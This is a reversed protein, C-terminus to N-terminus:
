AKNSSVCNYQNILVTLAYRHNQHNSFCPKRVILSQSGSSSPLNTTEKGSYDLTALLTPYPSRFIIRLTDFTHHLRHNYGDLISTM